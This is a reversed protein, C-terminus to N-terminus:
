RTGGGGGNGSSWGGEAGPGRESGRQLLAGLEDDIGSDGGDLNLGDDGGVTGAGGGGGGPANADPAAAAGGAGIGAAAGGAGASANAIHGADYARFLALLVLDYVIKLAAAVYFPASLWFGERHLSSTTTAAAGGGAGSAGVGAADGGAGILLSMILPSLALGLSRAINTVGGAASREDSAVVTAVFTQRAPVDMQSVSFRALLVIVALSATPMRPVLALLVNSPLHTYVMTRVPGIRKVLRAALIGSVGAIVNVGMLVSGLTATDVDWRVTLWWSIFTQTALGGAFADLAFLASLRAVVQKSEPRRLGFDPASSFLSGFARAVWSAPSSGAAAALLGGGGGGGLGGGGAGTAFLTTPGRGGAGGKGLGIDRVAVPEVAPSLRAYVLAKALGLAAYLILISRYAGAPTWDVAPSRLFSVISGALLAGVAQSAYGLAGYYGFLTPIDLSGSSSASTPSSSSPSSSSSSSSSSTIAGTGGAGQGVLVDTLAAQEVALFPGIEGGTTSIVGVIGAAAIVVFSVSSSTTTAAFVVGALLKLLAGLVLTKRRGMGGVRDAKTTLQLTIALDGVLICTLLVGVQMDTFGIATLYLLLVVTLAGYSCMRLARTLFLLQADRPLRLLAAPFISAWFAACVAQRPRFHSPPM